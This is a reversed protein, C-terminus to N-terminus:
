PSQNNNSPSFVVPVTMFSGDGTARIQYTTPAHVAASNRSATNGNREETSTNYNNLANFRTATEGGMYSNIAALQANRLRAESSTESPFSAANRVASSVAQDTVHNVDGLGASTLIGDMETRWSPSLHREAEAGHAFPGNILSNLMVASNLGETHSHLLRRERQPLQDETLGLETHLSRHFENMATTSSSDSRPVNRSSSQATSNANSASSTNTNVLGGTGYQALHARNAMEYMHARHPDSGASSDAEDSDSSQDDVLRIHHHVRTGNSLLTSGTRSNEQADSSHPDGISYSTGSSIPFGRRLAAAINRRDSERAAERDIQREDEQDLELARQAAAYRSPSAIYDDINSRPREALASLGLLDGRSPDSLAENGAGGASRDYHFYERHFRDLSDNIEERDRAMLEAADGRGFSFNLRPRAQQDNTAATALDKLYQALEEQLKLTMEPRSNNTHESAEKTVIEQADNEKGESRRATNKCTETSLCEYCNSYNTAGTDRILDLWCSMEETSYKELETQTPIDDTLEARCIPCNLKMELWPVVCSHHFVHSCPLRTAIAKVAFDESCIPCSPQSCVTDLDLKCQRIKGAMVKTLKKKNVEAANRQIEQNMRLHSSEFAHQLQELEERLQSELLRLMASANTIRRSQETNLEESGFIHGFRSNGTRPLVLDSHRLVGGLEEIFASNCNPCVFEPSGHVPANYVRHCAHCLYRQTEAHLGLGGDLSAGAGM